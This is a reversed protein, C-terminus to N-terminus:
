ALSVNMTQAIARATMGTEPDAADLDAGLEILRRAVDDYGDWALQASIANVLLLWSHERLATLDLTEPQALAALSADPGDNGIVDLLAQMGDHETLRAKGRGLQARAQARPSKEAFAFASFLLTWTKGDYLSAGHPSATLMVKGDPSVDIVGCANRVAAPQDPPNILKGDQLVWLGYDSGCWLRGDFWAMDKFPLSFRGELLRKWRDNRGIWLSGDKGGIYVNGDGACCVTYLLENSPFDIQQWAKGDFHWVDGTGGVAYLDDDAFAALDNFGVEFGGKGEEALQKPVPPSAAFSRWDDPGARWRVQRADGIATLRGAVRAVNLVSWCYESDPIQPPIDQEVNATPADYWFVHSGMDVAVFESKGNAESYAVRTFNFYDAEQYYFRREMPREMRAFLFRTRPLPDRHPSNTAEVLVFCYRTNDYGIACDYVTFGKFFREYREKDCIMEM